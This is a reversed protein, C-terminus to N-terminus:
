EIPKREYQCCSELKDYAYDDGYYKDNDYGAKAILQQLYDLKVIATDFTITMLKSDVNWNKKTVGNIGSASEITKKCKECNGWVKFTETKLTSNTNCSFLLILILASSFFLKYNM